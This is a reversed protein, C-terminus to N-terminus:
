ASIPAPIDIDSHRVEQSIRANSTRLRHVAGHRLDAIRQFVDGVNITQFDVAHAPITSHAMIHDTIPYEVTHLEDGDIDRTLSGQPVVAIIGTKFFASSTGNFLSEGGSM